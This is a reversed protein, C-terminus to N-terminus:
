IIRNEASKFAILLTELVKYKKAFGLYFVNEQGGFLSLFNGPAALTRCFVHKLGGVLPPPPHIVSPLAAPKEAPDYWSPL